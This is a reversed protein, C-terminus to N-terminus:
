QGDSLCSFGDLHRSGPSNDGLDGVSRTARNGTLHSKIAPVSRRIWIIAGVTGDVANFIEPVRVRAVETQLNLRTAVIHSDAMTRLEVRDNSFNADGTSFLNRHLRLKQARDVRGTPEAGFQM